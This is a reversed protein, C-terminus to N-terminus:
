TRLMPLDNESVLRDLAPELNRRLNQPLSLVYKRIQVLAVSTKCDDVHQEEDSCAANGPKSTPGRFEDDCALPNNGDDETNATKSPKKPMSGFGGQSSSTTDTCVRTDGNREGLKGAAGEMLELVVVSLVQVNFM